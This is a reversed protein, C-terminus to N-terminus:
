NALPKPLRLDQFVPWRHGYEALEPATCVVTLYCGIDDRKLRTMGVYALALASPSKGHAIHVVLAKSEWGKFSHITTLKVRSDGKFFAQKKRQGDYYKEIPSEGQGFTHIAGVNNYRLLRAVEMGITEDEVICTFDAWAIPPDSQTVMDVLADFCRQAAEEQSAQWWKLVTKFEFQGAKSKPPEAELKPFYQALFAAALDCLAPSLRYSGDLTGWEGRFGAGTMEEETWVPVEYINQAKDACLLAEGSPVLAQRLTLWWSLEFDQGEDVLIADWREEVEMSQLWERTKLALRGKLVEDADGHEAWLERYDAYHGSQEAVRRCWLHFNLAVIRDRVKGSQTFRVAMDLIYNILTINFTIVLVRKEEGALIAARGALVFTKGSGAPGRVRRYGTATRTTVLRRQTPSLDNLLPRRQEAAFAPEVLWHRLDSAVLDNMRDDERYISPLVHKKFKSKSEDALTEQGVVPYLSAYKDHGYYARLPGLLRLVEAESAFPFVVGAVISGFGDRSPLRPCYLAYIEDKYLDIKPIPNQKELSFVKGDRRAMLRPARGERQDVFYDM